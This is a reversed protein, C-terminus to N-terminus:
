PEKRDLMNRVACDKAELLKRLCVTREPTPAQTVIVHQALDRFRASVDQLPRPLHAYAFYRWLREAQLPLDAIAPVAPYSPTDQSIQESPM